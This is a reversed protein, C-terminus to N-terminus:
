PNWCFVIQAGDANASLSALAVPAKTAPNLRDDLVIQAIVGAAAGVVAGRAALEHDWATTSLAGLAAGTLVTGTRAFLRQSGSPAQGRQLKRDADRGVLYGGAFGVTGFTSLVVIAEDWDDSSITFAGGLAVGLAGGTLTSPIAWHTHRGVTADGVPTLPASPKSQGAVPNSFFLLPIVLLSLRATGGASPGSALTARM